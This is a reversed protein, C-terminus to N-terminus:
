IKGEIILDNYMALRRRSLRTDKAVGINELFGNVLLRSNNSAELNDEHNVSGSYSNVAGVFTQETIFLEKYESRNLSNYLGTLLEGMSSNLKGDKPIHERRTKDWADATKTQLDQYHQSLIPQVKYGFMTKQPYEDIKYMETLKQKIQQAVKNVKKTPNKTFSIATVIMIAICVANDKTM